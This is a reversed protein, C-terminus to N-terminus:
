LAAFALYPGAAAQTNDYTLREPLTGLTKALKFSM